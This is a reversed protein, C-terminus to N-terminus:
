FLFFFFQFVNNYGWHLEFDRFIANIMRPTWAVYGVTDIDPPVFDAVGTYCSYGSYTAELHGFLKKRV